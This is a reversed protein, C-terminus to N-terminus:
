PREDLVEVDFGLGRLEDDSMVGALSRRAQRVEAWRQSLEADEGAGNQGVTQDEGQPHNQEAM